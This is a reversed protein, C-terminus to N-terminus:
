EVLTDHLHHEAEVMNPPMAVNHHRGDADYEMAQESLVDAIGAIAGDRDIPVELAVVSSGFAARLDALVRDFDAREKNEKNVFIMRPVGAAAARRWLLETQVEVGEVASVVMVALDAVALAADVEGAFDAYGPTDILNIKYSHGAPCTWEIPALALSLSIRRKQEEPETDLISTGEDVSGARTVAGSRALLAEALTTKGAGGHGLLAVNRIQATSYTKM